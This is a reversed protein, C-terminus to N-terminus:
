LSREPAFARSMRCVVSAYVGYEVGSDLRKHFSNRVSLVRRCQGYTAQGIRGVYADLRDPVVLLAPQQRHGDGFTGISAIRSIQNSPNTENLSPLFQPESQRFNGFQQSQLVASVSGRNSADGVGSQLLNVLFNGVKLAHAVHEGMQHILALARLFM